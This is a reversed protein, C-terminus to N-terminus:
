HFFSPCPPLPCFPPSFSSPHSKDINSAACCLYSLAHSVSFDGECFNMELRWCKRQRRRKSDREKRINGDQNLFFSFLFGEDQPNRWDGSMEKREKKKKLHGLIEVSYDKGETEIEM